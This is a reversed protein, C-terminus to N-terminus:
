ALQGYLASPTAREIRVPVLRGVLGPDAPFHVVRNGRTRGMFQIGRKDPGEVLVEQQTGLLAAVHRRSNEELLALLHQNRREKTPEDIQDGMEAAPTGSRVSYKFIYAMDFDAERFLAATQEFDEETEGPFGVIVDTSLALSPRAARLGAVIELYRERTYPRNMAALVRNSGSQVPLHASDCLKPMRAFAGVLDGKFGRPHPSTFRIRDIGDVAHIRELLQVFPSIGNAHTYDRRGYSTVIQGLLTV